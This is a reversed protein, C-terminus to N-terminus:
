LYDTLYFYIPFTAILFVPIIGYFTYLYFALDYEYGHFHSLSLNASFAGQVTYLFLFGFFVFPLHNKLRAELHKRQAATGQEVALIVQNIIRRTLWLIGTVNLAIVVASYEYLVALLQPWPYIGVFTMIVIGSVPVLVLAAIVIRLIGRRFEDASLPKQNFSDL